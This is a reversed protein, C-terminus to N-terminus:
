ILQFTYTFVDEDIKDFYVRFSKITNYKYVNANFYSDSEDFEEILIDHFDLEKEHIKFVAEKASWCLTMLDINTCWNLEQKQLFKHKVKQVRDAIHEIDIGVEFNESLIIAVHNKSHSVSINQTSNDLFPKGYKSYTILVRKQLLETLLIRTVIWERKRKDNKFQQYQVEEHKLLPFIAELEVLPETLKWIGLKSDSSIPTNVVIPM